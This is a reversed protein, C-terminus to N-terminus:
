NYKLKPQFFLRKAIKIYNNEIKFVDNNKHLNYSEIYIVIPIIRSFYTFFIYYINMNSSINNM